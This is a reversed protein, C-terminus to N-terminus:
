TRDMGVRVDAGVVAGIFAGKLQQYQQVTGRSPEACIAEDVQNAPLPLAFPGATGLGGRLTVYVTAGSDAAPLSGIHLNIAYNYTDALVALLRCCRAM